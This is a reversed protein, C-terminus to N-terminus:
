CFADSLAEEGDTGFAQISRLEHRAGVLSNAFFSYAQFTKRYHIFLPGLFIPLSGSCRCKLLLHRYTIPTCDFDGLCFTPDVTLICFNEKQTAFKVLDDLQRDRSIVLAPDPAFNYAIVYQGKSDGLKARQLLVFFEDDERQRPLQPGSSFLARKAKTVQQENRVLAGPYTANEMGGVQGSVSGVTAKPGTHCSSKILKMTSPLTPYFPQNSKSNGHPVVQPKFDM